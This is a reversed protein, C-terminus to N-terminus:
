KIWLYMLFIMFYIDQQLMIRIKLALILGALSVRLLSALQYLMAQTILYFLLYLQEMLYLFHLHNYVLEIRSKRLSFMERAEAIDIASTCVGGQSLGHLRNGGAFVDRIAIHQTVPRSRRGLGSITRVQVRYTNDRINTIPIQTQQRLKLRLM